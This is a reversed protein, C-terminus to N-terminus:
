ILASLGSWEGLESVLKIVASPVQLSQANQASLASKLEEIKVLSIKLGILERPGAQGSVIRGSLREMDSIGRLLEQARSRVPKDQVFFDVSEMRSRIKALSILPRVLWQKLLRGGMATRTRDLFNLLTKETSGDYTNELLELNLITERDLAMHDGQEMRLIPQVNPLIASHMRQVYDLIMRVPVSASPFDKFFLSMSPSLLNGPVDSGSAPVDVGRASFGNMRVALEERGSPYIIEAPNIRSLEAELSTLPDDASTETLFFEGTSIDLAAIFYNSEGARKKEKGASGAPAVATLFNNTKESLLKEETLTGASLTRVVDRRVIGKASEPDEMQEAVSVRLGKKLLKPLYRDVSHYPIGCMPVGQRQTLAVELIPAARRADEGFMEYFDGLRFLLVEEPHAAKIQEYQKM